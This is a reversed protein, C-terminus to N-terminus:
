QKSIMPVLSRRGKEKNVEMIIGKSQARQFDSDGAFDGRDEAEKPSNKEM